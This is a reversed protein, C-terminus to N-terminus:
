RCSIVNLSLTCLAASVYLTRWYFTCDRASLDDTTYILKTINNM